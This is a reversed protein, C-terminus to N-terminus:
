AGFVVRGDVMTLRVDCQAFEDPDAALPDLAFATLAARGGPAIMGLDHDGAVEAPTRTYATLAAGAGIAQAPGIATLDVRGAPRRTMAAAIIGRPDHGAIPWDSGLVVPVGARVLDGVRWGSAAREAGLRLSWNDTGDARTFETCHTPQMSAVAGVSVFRHVLADPITEIHEIRHPVRRQTGEIAALACGVGADGIAHTATRVGHADFHAIARAYDHPDPWVGKTSQGHTDPRSLWATGNDVTGDVFLKVGGVRWRDGGAGVAAVIQAWEQEDTGPPCWPHAVVRVPLGGLQEIADYVADAGPHHEMAHVATIGDAAMQQLRDAVRAVLLAPDPEPLAANIVDMAAMEQVVGTPGEADCEVYSGDEFELPGDIGARRLAESSALLGHGDFFRLVTPRGPAIEDLVRRHLLGDPLGEPDLGWALLWDGPGLTDAEDRLVRRIGDPGLAHLAPGATLQVGLLPHVHGDILGPVLTAPGLDIVRTGPGTWLRADQRDGLAVVHEGSIAVATVPPGDTGPHITDALVITDARM